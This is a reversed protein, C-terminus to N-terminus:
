DCAPSSMVWFAWPFRRRSPLILGNKCCRKSPEVSCRRKSMSAPRPAPKPLVQSPPSMPEPPLLIEVAIRIVPEWGASVTRARQELRHAQDLLVRAQRHLMEGVPTLVTRRGRTEFASVGLRRELQQILYTVASQSKNLAVAAAAYSGTEVVAVLAQWQDLSVYSRQNM